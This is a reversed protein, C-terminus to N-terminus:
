PSDKLEGIVSGPTWSTVSTNSCVYRFGIVIIVPINM